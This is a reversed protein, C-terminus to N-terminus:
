GVKGKIHGPKLLISKEQHFYNQTNINGASPLLQNIFGFVGCISATFGM